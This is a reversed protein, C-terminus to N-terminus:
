AAREAALDEIMLMKEIDLVILLRDDLRYIGKSVDQWSLDMNSPLAECDKLALRLVEGVSDIILGYSENNIEVGIAMIAQDQNEVAPLGLRQRADIATVIRGRLNLVGRVEAPAMPVRTLSQPQFVDHINTVEIGFLQDAVEVTVYERTDADSHIHKNGTDSM